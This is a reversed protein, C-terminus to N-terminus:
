LKYLTSSLSPPHTHMYACTINRGANLILMDLERHSWQFSRAFDRISKLSGLDLNIYEVRNEGPLGKLEQKIRAVAERGKNDSRCGIVVQAGKRALERATYYGIGTNAGTVIATKGTLDPIHRFRYYQSTFLTMRGGIWNSLWIPLIVCLLPIFMRRREKKREAFRKRYIYCRQDCFNSWSLQLSGSQYVPSNLDDFVICLM